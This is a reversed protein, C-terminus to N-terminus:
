VSCVEIQMLRLKEIADKPAASDTIVRHVLRFDTVVSLSRHGFKSSDALVTVQAAANIMQRNLHAEMIDITTIGIHPDLGVASLFCHDAHLTGIMQEAHPGVFATSPNRFVGGLMILSIGPIDSLISAINLAYTIISVGHPPSARLEAALLASTSGTCLIVTQHPKILGAAYRAIRVKEDRRINERVKLPHEPVAALPKIGGGWSRILTGAESLANLDGRATVTSVGFRKSIEGISVRGNKELIGLIERRREETLLRNSEEPM